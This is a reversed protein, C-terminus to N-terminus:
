GEKELREARALNADGGRQWEAHWSEPNFPLMREAVEVLDLDPNLTSATMRIELQGGALLGKANYLESDARGEPQGNQQALAALKGKPLLAAGASLLSGKMLSRRTLFNMAYRRSGIETLM